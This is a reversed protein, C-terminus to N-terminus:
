LPKQAGRLATQTEGEEWAGVPCQQALHPTHAPVRPLTRPPALLFPSWQGLPGAKKIRKRRPPALNPSLLGSSSCGGLGKGAGPKSQPLRGQVWMGVRDRREM